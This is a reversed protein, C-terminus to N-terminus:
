KAKGLWRLRAILLRDQGGYLQGFRDSTINANVTTPNFHNTINDVGVRLAWLHGRLTIRREVALDLEFHSPYRYSNASGIVFGADDLASFPFGGRYDIFGAIAWKPRIVAPLYFWAVVRNPTDWDLPGDNNTALVYDGPSIDIVANSTVRSRTYSASWGYEQRITQRVSAEVARYRERRANSLTYTTDRESSPTGFFSLGNASRRDFAQARFFLNRRRFRRDVTLSWTRAHPSSLQGPIVFTSRFSRSALDPAQTYFTNIPRQDDARSFLHLRTADRAIAYGGSIRLDDDNFPSWAIGLRPSAGWDSVLDDWDARVGLQAVVRSSLRWTDQVYAGAEVNSASVTGSGEFAITRIPALASDFLRIESRGTEQDYGLWDLGVGTKVQHSGALTFAPLYLNALAQDRSSEQRGDFYHNGSRGEPTSIYPARGKPEQRLFTRNSGYGVEFLAGGKLMQQDRLNFLVQRSRTDLTTSVPDLASLGANRSWAMSFLASAHLMNTPTPNIQAHLHDSARAWWAQDEGGPLEPVVYQHFEGNANNTFWARGAKIPGSVSVRPTWDLVRWGKQNGIVPVFTAASYRMRDGGTNTIIEIAGASGKGFEASIPGSMVNIARVADVSIRPNFRGSLPDGINFGDLLFSVEHEPAGNLHIGTFADQVVGPLIRLSNKVNESGPYPVNLLEQSGITKDAANRELVLADGGRAQVNTTESYERVPELTFTVETRGSGITMARDAIPFFGSSEVRVIYDGPAPLVISFAGSADTSQQLQEPATATAAQRVIITAARLPEQTDSLVRGSLIAPGQAATHGTMVVMSLALLTVLRAM